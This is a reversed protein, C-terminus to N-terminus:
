QPRRRHIVLWRIGCGFVSGLIVVPVALWWNTSFDSQTLIGSSASLWFTLLAGTLAVVLWSRLTSSAMSKKQFVLAVCMAIVICVLLHALTSEM